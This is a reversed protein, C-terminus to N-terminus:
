FNKYRPKSFNVAKVRARQRNNQDKIRETFDDKPRIGERDLRRAWALGHGYAVIRDVNADSNFDIM